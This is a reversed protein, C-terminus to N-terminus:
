AARISDRAISSSSRQENVSDGCGPESISYFRNVLARATCTCRGCQSGVKLERRVDFMSKDGEALLTEIQRETVAHCICVYM